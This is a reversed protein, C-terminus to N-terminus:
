KKQKIGFALKWCDEYKNIGEHTTDELSRGKIKVFMKYAIPQWCNGRKVLDVSLIAENKVFTPSM